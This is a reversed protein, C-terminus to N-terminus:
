AEDERQSRLERPLTGGNNFRIKLAMRELQSPIFLKLFLSGLIGIRYTSWIRGSQSREVADAIESAVMEMPRGRKTKTRADRYRSGSGLVQRTSGDQPLMSGPDVILVKIGLAKLEPAASCFFADLGAKSAAYATGGPVCGIVGALSTLAVVMGRPSASLYPLFAHLANAAGILNIEIVKRFTDTNEWDAVVEDFNVGAVFLMTSVGGCEANAFAALAKMSEANTVDCAYTRVVPFRAKLADLKAEDRSAAVVRHGRSFLSEVLAAGLGQSAGIVVMAM